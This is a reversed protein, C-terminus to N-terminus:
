KIVVKRGNVIYMGKSLGNLSNGVHQGNMNYVKGNVPMIDEGDLRDIATAESGETIDMIDDDFIFNYQRGNADTSNRFSDDLGDMFTIQLTQDFVAHGESDKGVEQPTRTAYEGTTTLDRYNGSGNVDSVMIICKYPFWLYSKDDLTFHYWSHEWMYFCYKPLPQKWYQGLFTYYYKNETGDHKLYEAGSPTDKFACIKHGEYPKAFKSVAGTINGGLSEQCEDHYICSQTLPFAYHTMVYQGLNVFTAGKPKYAKIIYPYGGRIIIKDDANDAKNDNDTYSVTNTEYNITLYKGVYGSSFLNRSMMLNVIGQTGPTRTVQKLTHIQPLLPGSANTISDGSVEGTESNVTFKGTTTRVNGYSAPVGLMEIVQKRTMDFPICFTYWGAEEYERYIIDNSVTEAEPVYTAKSLVFEHWGIHDYFDAHASGLSNDDDSTIGSPLESPVKNIVNGIPNGNTADSGEDWDGWVRNRIAQNWARCLEAFTPWPIPNGNADLAGTQDKKTYKKTIDTYNKTQAETLGEPFHLLTYKFGNNIYKDRCYVNSPDFGGWGYTMGEAFAGSYCKPANKALVYVDTIMKSDYANFVPEALRTTVNSGPANGIEQLQDSFTYTYEGNDIEAGNADTTTLHTLNTYQFAANGIKTYERPICLYSLNKCLYLFNDPIETMYKSLILSTINSWGLSGLTMNAPKLTPSSPNSTYSTYDVFKADEMDLTTPSGHELAGSGNGNGAAVYEGNVDIYTSGNALDSAVLYGGVTINKLAATSYNYFNPRFTAVQMMTKRLTNPKAVYAVMASRGANLSIAANLNTCGSFDAGLVKDKGNNSNKAGHGLSQPLIINNISTNSIKKATNTVSTTSKLDVDDALKAGELNLTADRYLAEASEEVTSFALQNITYIDATTLKYETKNDGPPTTTNITLNCPDKTEEGYIYSLAASLNTFNTTEGDLTITVACGNRQYGAVNASYPATATASIQPYIRGNKSSNIMGSGFTESTKINGTIAAYTADSTNYTATWNTDDSSTVDSSNYQRTLILDGTTLNSDSSSGMLTTGFDVNVIDVSGLKNTYSLDINGYIKGSATFSTLKSGTFSVDGNIDVENINVSELNACDATVSKITVGDLYLHKLATCGDADVAYTANNDLGTVDLDEIVTNNFDLTPPTGSFGDMASTLIRVTKITTGVTNSSITVSASTSPETYTFSTLCANNIADVMTPTLVGSATSSYTGRVFEVATTGSEVIRPDALAGPSYNTTLGLVKLTTGAYSYAAAIKNGRKDATLKGFCALDDASWNDPMIIRYANDYNSNNIKPTSFSNYILDPTINAESFNLYAFSTPKTTLGNWNVDAASLATASAVKIYVATTLGSETNFAKALGGANVVYVYDAVTAGADSTPSYVYDLGACAAVRSQLVGTVEQGKPLTLSSLNAPLKLDTIAAASAITADALNISTVSSFDSGDFQSMFATNMEGSTITISTPKLDISTLASVKSSLESVACSIATLVVNTNPTVRDAVGQSACAVVTATNPVTIANTSTNGTTTVSTLDIKTINSSTTNAVTSLDIQTTIDKVVKLITTETASSILNLNVLGDDADSSTPTNFAANITKTTTGSVSYYNIDTARTAGYASMVAYSSPDEGEPVIINKPYNNADGIVPLNLSWSDLTAGDDGLKNFTTVGSLDLVLDKFKQGLICGDSNSGNNQDSNNFSAVVGTIVAKNIDTLNVDYPFATMDNRQAIHVEIVGTTTNVKYYSGNTGFGTYGEPVDAWAGISVCLMSIIFLLYRKM